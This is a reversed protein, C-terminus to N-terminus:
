VREEPKGLGSVCLREGGVEQAWDHLVFDPIRAQMREVATRADIVLFSQDSMKSKIMEADIRIEPRPKSTFQTPMPKHKERSVTLGLGEM